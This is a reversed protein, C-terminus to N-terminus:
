SPSTCTTTWSSRSQKARSVYIWRLLSIRIQLSHCFFRVTDGKLKFADKELRDLANRKPQVPGHFVQKKKKLVAPGFCYTCGHPCSLYLNAALPCYERAKGRPEYIICM